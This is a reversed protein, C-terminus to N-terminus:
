IKQTKQDFVPRALILFIVTSIGAAAFIMCM